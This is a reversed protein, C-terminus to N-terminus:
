RYRGGLIETTSPGKDTLKKFLGSGADVPDDHVNPDPYADHADLFWENWDGRVLKVNGGEAYAQYPEARALKSGTPREPRVTYGPVARRFADSAFKGSAGPEEEIWQTVGHGDAITTQKFLAMLKGPSVRDRVAHDIYIINDHTIFGRAGVTWDPNTEMMRAMNAKSRSRRVETGAFDWFRIRKKIKTRPVAEPDVIEFDGRRFLKGGSARIKWNGGLLRERTVRDQAYLNAKYAPDQELLRKNDDLTAAIFTLSKPNLDDPLGMTERWAIAEKRTDFWHLDEDIKIFWRIVGSREVGRWRPAVRDWRRASIPYGTEPDWWWAILRAVWSDADPNCTARVYPRVGCTSRNRTLMYFFQRQTFTTLEDFLELAIQASHWDLLTEETQLHGFAITAGSPFRFDLVNGGRPVAGMAPYLGSAEDWLGGEKVIDTLKRRFIVSGFGRNAIHRTPELLLAYSKGGGAAGGYIVIDARSSLFATQPGPQPRIENEALTLNGAM